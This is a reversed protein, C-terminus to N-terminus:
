CAMIPLNLFSSMVLVYVAEGLHVQSSTIEINYKNGCAVNYDFIWHNTQKEKRNVALVIEMHTRTIPFGQTGSPYGEQHRCWKHASQEVWSGLAALHIPALHPKKKAIYLSYTECGWPKRLEKYLFIFYKWCCQYMRNIKKVSSKQNSIKYRFARESIKMIKEKPLNKPSSALYHCYKFDKQSLFWYKDELM